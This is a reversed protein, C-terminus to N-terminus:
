YILIEKYEYELDYFDVNETNYIRGDKSLLHLVSGNWIGDMAVFEREQRKIDDGCIEYLILSKETLVFFSNQDKEIIKSINSNVNITNMLNGEGDVFVLNGNRFGVVVGNDMKKMFLILSENELFVYFMIKGDLRSVRIRGYKDGTWIYNAVVICTTLCRNGFLPKGPNNFLYVDGFRDCLYTQGNYHAVSSINKNITHSFTILLKNDEIKITHVGKKIDIFIKDELYYILTHHIYENIPIYNKTLYILKNAKIVLINHNYKIIYSHM